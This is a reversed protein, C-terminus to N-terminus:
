MMGRQVYFRYFFLMARFLPLEGKIVTVRRTGAYLLFELSERAGIKCWLTGAPQTKGRASQRRKIKNKCWRAYRVLALSALSRSLLHLNCTPLSQEAGHRFWQERSCPWILFLQKACVSLAFSKLPWAAGHFRWIIPHTRPTFDSLRLYDRMLFDKKPLKNWFHARSFEMAMQARILSFDGM